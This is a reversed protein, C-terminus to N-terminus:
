RGAPRRLCESASEQRNLQLVAACLFCCTLAAALGFVLDSEADM